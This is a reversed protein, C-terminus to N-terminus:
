LFKTLLAWFSAQSEFVNGAKFNIREFVWCKDKEVSVLWCRGFDTGATPSLIDMLHGKNKTFLQKKPCLFYHLCVKQYFFWRIWFFHLFMPWFNSLETSPSKATSYIIDSSNTKQMLKKLFTKTQTLLKLFFKPGLRLFRELAFVM